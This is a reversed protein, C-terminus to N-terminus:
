AELTSRLLTASAIHPSAAHTARLCSPVATAHPAPSEPPSGELTSRVFIDSTSTSASISMHSPSGDRLEDVVTVLVVVAVVVAVVLVVESLKEVVAVVESLLWAALTDGYAETTRRTRNVTAPDLCAPAAAANTARTPRTGDAEAVARKVHPSTFASWLLSPHLPLAPL